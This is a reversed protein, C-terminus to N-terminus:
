GQPSDGPGACARVPGERNALLRWVLGSPSPDPAPTVGSSAPGQPRSAVPRHGGRRRRQGHAPRQRCRQPVPLRHRQKRGYVARLDLGPRIRCGSASPRPRGSIAVSDGAGAGRGACNTRSRIGCPTPLTGIVLHPGTDRVDLLLVPLSRMGEGLSFGYSRARRDLTVLPFPSACLTGPSELTLIPDGTRNRRPAGCPESWFLRQDTRREPDPQVAPSCKGQLSAIQRGTM